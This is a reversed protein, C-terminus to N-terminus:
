RTLPLLPIKGMSKLYKGLEENNDMYNLYDENWCTSYKLDRRIIMDAVCHKLYAVELFTEDPKTSLSNTDPLKPLRISDKGEHLAHLQGQYYNIHEVSYEARM